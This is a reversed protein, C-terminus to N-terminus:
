IGLILKIKKVYRRSVFTTTGNSLTISITGTYSLDINKIAKMNVIESNSIRVFLRQDLREELEYLRLRVVFESSMTQAYIKKDVSYLRIIERIDILQINDDKFGALIKQQYVSLKQIIDHVEDTMESTKITIEPEKYNADIEVKIQM